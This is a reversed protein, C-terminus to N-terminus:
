NLDSEQLIEDARLARRVYRGIVKSLQDPPIGTGPKKFTL